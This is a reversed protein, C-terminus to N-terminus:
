DYYDPTPVEIIDLILSAPIDRTVAGDFEIDCLYDRLYAAAEHYIFCSIITKERYDSIWTYPVVFKILLSTGMNRLVRYVDPMTRELAGRALEGGINVCFQDYGLANKVCFSNNNAFFCIQDSLGKEKRHKEDKIQQLAKNITTSDIGGKILTKRIDSSYRAWDNIHLGSEKIEKPYLVKTAHYCVIEEKNLIDKVAKYLECAGDANCKCCGDWEYWPSDVKGLEKKICLRKFKDRVVVALEPPITTYDTLDIM